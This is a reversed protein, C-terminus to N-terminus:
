FELEVTGIGSQEPSLTVTIVEAAAAVEGGGVEAHVLAYGPPQYVRIRYPFPAAGPSPADLVFRLTLRRAQEDWREEVLDTGGQTLHRNHGLLQPRGTRERLAVVAQGHAPVTHELTGQVVGLFSEGWFEHALYSRDADLGWAALDIAYTRPEDAMERPPNQRYDYNRGWNLLGCVMWSADAGALTGEIPLRYVEPYHRTFLDMPRAGTPYSPLLKRWVDIQEPSLTRLDEGFKVISGKLGIFSALTIAEDLTVAPEPNSADTRFFLLDDHSVWVRNHLYYRRAGIRATSKFNSGDGFLGFPEEEEWRPGTDLTVRMSDVVGYNLGMLAIGLYFVDDGLVERFARIAQKYAEINTLRPDARPRYPLALYAFDLKIWGMRWDHRYREMTQRLWEIVEPNSLDLMREDDGPAFLEGLLNDEPAALWSPHDAALQSSLDVTFASIWLGPILGRQEVAQAFARMGSPFRDPRPLWDGDALQYGDDVQFYDMGFSGFERAMVDLNEVMIREDIDTGLGGSSGSGTWSNWGNPVPRGGDRKTWVTFDLWGAVADAYQELATHPDPALPNVYLPEAALREGPALPKGFFALQDDAVFGHLGAREDAVVPPADPDYRTGMTPFGTEVSLAGAVWSRRSDLDVIAHNWNSVVQGRSEIPLLADLLPFRGEEPTHLKVDVDGVLSSGNDLIRHTSPDAGIFLGGDPGDTVLPTLRLVTLEQGTRNDLDLTAVAIARETDQYVSWRLEVGAYLCSWSLGRLGSFYAATTPPAEDLEWRGHCNDRTSLSLPVGGQEVLAEAWGGRLLVSGDREGLDVRGDERATVVLRGPYVPAPELAEEDGCGCAFLAGLLV